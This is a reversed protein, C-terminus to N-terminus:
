NLLDSLISEKDKIHDVLGALLTDTDVGAYLLFRGEEEGKAGVIAGAIPLCIISESVGTEANLSFPCIGVELDGYKNFDDELWSMLELIKM